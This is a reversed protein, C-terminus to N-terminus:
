VEQDRILNGYSFGATLGGMPHAKAHSAPERKQKQPFKKHSKLIIRSKIVQELVHGRREVSKKM